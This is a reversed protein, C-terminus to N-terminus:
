VLVVDGSHLLSLFIDVVDSTFASSGDGLRWENLSELLLSVLNEVENVWDILVHDLLHLIILIM